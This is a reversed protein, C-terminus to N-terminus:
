DFIVNLKQSEVSIDTSKIEDKAFVYVSVFVFMMLLFSIIKKM